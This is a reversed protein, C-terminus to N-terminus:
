SQNSEQEQKYEKEMEEWTAQLAAVLSKKARLALEKKETYADVASIVAEDFRSKTMDEAHHLTKKLNKALVNLDHQLEDTLEEGKKLAIGVAAGATLLGGLILGKKFLNNM